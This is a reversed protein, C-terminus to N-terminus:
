RTLASVSGALAIGPRLDPAPLPDGYSVSMPVVGAWAPGAVDADPDEPWGDSIKLSWREIPMALLLTAALERQDPRRLEAVRGPILSETLVDLSRLKPDGELATCTGFLVASRYHMSSEFASRAAVLGQVTTVTICAPAGAALARLWRSGTSGHVIVVDGDRAVATPIVVPWGDDVLGVHAVRASDLLDDLQQRDDVAYEALRTIQTRPPSTM